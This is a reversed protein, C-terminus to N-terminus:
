ESKSLVKPDRNRAICEIKKDKIRLFGVGLLFEIDDELDLTKSRINSISKSISADSVGFHKGIERVSKGEKLMQIIQRERETIFGM